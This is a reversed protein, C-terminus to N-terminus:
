ARRRRTPRPAEDEDDYYSQGSREATRSARQKRVFDEPDEARHRSSQKQIVSATNRSLRYQGASGSLLAADEDSMTGMTPERPRLPAAPPEDDLPSPEDEDAAGRRIRSLYDRSKAPIDFDFEAPEPEPSYAEAAPAPLIDEPDDDEFDLDPRADKTSVALSPSDPRRYASRDIQEAADQVAEPIFSPATYALGNDPTEDVQIPADLNLVADPEEHEPMEPSKAREPAKKQKNTPTRKPARSYDRHPSRQISDIVVHHGGGGPIQV